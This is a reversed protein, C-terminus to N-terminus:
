NTLSAKLLSWTSEISDSPLRADRWRSISWLGSTEPTVTLVMSGKLLTPVTSLNHQVQLEYNTVYVTSDPSSYNVAVDIFTLRPRQDTALRAIMSLFAQRENNTNWGAFLSQYRGMVEASPEFVYPYKSRSNGDALTLMFNETNKEEVANRFNELVTGPTTPPSYTGRSGTPEEPTRTICSPLVSSLLLTVIVSKTSSM